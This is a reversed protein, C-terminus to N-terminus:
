NFTLGTWGEGIQTGSGTFMPDGSNAAGTGGQNAFLLMTGSANVVVLDAGFAGTLSATDVAQMTNFGTGVVYDSTFVPDSSGSGGTDGTNPFFELDGSPAVALLDPRGDGDMDAVDVTYGSFGTGITIASGFTADSTGVAGDGGSNPYYDLNGSPDRVVLGPYGSGFLDALGIVTYGTFGTGVQTPPLDFTSTGGLESNPYYDLAGGPATALIGAFGQDWLDGVAAVSYGNTWGSGVQVPAIDFTNPAAQGSNQYLNLTGSSTVSLIDPEGDGTV